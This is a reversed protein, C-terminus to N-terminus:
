KSIKAVISEEAILQGKCNFVYPSQCLAYISQRRVEAEMAIMAACGQKPGYASACSASFASIRTSRTEDGVAIVPYCPLEEIACAERKSCNPDLQGRLPPVL